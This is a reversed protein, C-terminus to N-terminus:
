EQQPENSVKATIVYAGPQLNTLVESVPIATTSMENPTTQTLDVQGEWIQEGSQNAVDEASYQDLTRRFLGNRVATAISRDGIRYIVLDASEANISTIPLGGGLGAPMVYANNAFGVFPSRNPVYVSLEADNRLKEGSASPLGSRVTLAYRRGHEVGSLCIQSSEPEISVTPADRVVVYNSYDADSALTESFVVCIRPTEAESDVENSTIRFGRQAVVEDLRQALERNDVLALSTRYTAIAERWMERRELGRGLMALATAREDVSVSRLFANMAAYTGAIGFDYAQSYNNKGAEETAKTLALDGFKLWLAPDNGNLGLAQRYSVMAGAPNSQAVADDGATVLDAYSIGKPAPDSSALGRAFGRAGDVLDSAPFPIEAQRVADTVEPMPSQKITGSTAGKFSVPEGAAGKLFCWKSKSNYTFARCINDDVCATQCANLSVGEMVQYDFGPLDTDPLTEYSRDAALAPATGLAMVLAVLWGASRLLRM